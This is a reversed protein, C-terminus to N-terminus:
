AGEGTHLLHAPLRVTVVTGTEPAFRVDAQGGHQGIIKRTLALSLATTAIRENVPLDFLTACQSETLPRESADAIEILVEDESQRARIHVQGAVRSVAVARRALTEFALSLLHADGNISHPEPPIEIHLGIGRADALPQIEHAIQGILSELSAPAIKLKLPRTLQSILTAHEAMLNLGSIIKDTIEVSEPKKGGDSATAVYHKKLWTAYLKLGSIHNKLDHLLRGTLRGIESYDSEETVFSAADPTAQEAGFPSFRILILPPESEQSLIHLRRLIVHHWQEQIFMTGEQAAEASTAFETLWDTLGPCDLWGAIMEVTSKDTALAAFQPDAALIRGALTCLLFAPLRQM